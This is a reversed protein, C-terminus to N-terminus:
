VIDSSFLVARGPASLRDILLTMGYPKQVPDVKQKDTTTLVVFVVVKILPLNGVFVSPFSVKFSPGTKKEDNGFNKIPFRFLFCCVVSGRNRGEPIINIKNSASVAARLTEAHRCRRV